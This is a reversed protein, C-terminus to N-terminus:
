ARVERSLPQGSEFETANSLTVIAIERLADETFFAQHGTILVNPFTLLRAILDDLLVEGSHDSFFLGEEQEYVDLGLAGVRRSKLADVVARTDILAGRGTNILMVGDKMLGLARGDILHQTAPTLPCHLSIIDSRRYLEDLAVYEVGRRALEADPKIDYALTKCGVGLMLGAFVAGILGTGLVGVTRGYLDFGTLGDLSFNGERVRNYAKHTKRNLTLILALAHEAVAHPSYAPVRAIRLNAAAAAKLDVNNFGACRLAIFRVGGSALAAITPADLRDNVFVCVGDFGTALPATRAELGAEFFVLEHGFRVNEAEFSKRDYGHASFLALKM